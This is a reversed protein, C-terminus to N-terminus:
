KIVRQPYKPVRKKRRHGLGSDETEREIEWEVNNDVKKHSISKWREPLTYEQDDAPFEWRTELEDPKLLAEAQTRSMGTRITYDKSGGAALESRFVKPLMNQHGDKISGEVSRKVKFLRKTLDLPLKTSQKQIVFQIRKGNWV